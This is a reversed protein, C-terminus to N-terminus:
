CASGERCCWKHWERAVGKRHFGSPVRIGAGFHTASGTTIGQQPMPLSLATLALSVVLLIQSRFSEEAFFVLVVSILISGLVVLVGSSTFWKLQQCEVGRSRRYRAVLAITPLLVALISLPAQAYSVYADRLPDLAAIHFPNSIDRLRRVARDCLGLVREGGGVCLRLAV